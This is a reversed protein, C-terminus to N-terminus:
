KSNLHSDVEDSTLNVAVLGQPVRNQIFRMARNLDKQMNRMEGALAQEPMNELESLQFPFRNQLNAFSIDPKDPTKKRNDFAQFVLLGIGLVIGAVAAAAIYRLPLNKQPNGFRMPVVERTQEDLRQMVSAEIRRLASDTFEPAATKLQREVQTMKQHWARCDPCRELHRLARASQIRGQEDIDSVIQWRYIRCFM